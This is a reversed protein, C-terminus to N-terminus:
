KQPEQEPEKPPLTRSPHCVVWFFYASNSGSPAHWSPYPSLFIGSQLLFPHWPLCVFLIGKKTQHHLFPVCISWQHDALVGLNSLPSFCYFRTMVLVIFLSRQRSCLFSLPRSGYRLFLFDFLYVLFCFSVLTLSLFFPSFGFFYFLYFTLVAPMCWYISEREGECFGARQWFWFSGKHM